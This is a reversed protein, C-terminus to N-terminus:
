LRGFFGCLVELIRLPPFYHVNYHRLVHKFTHHENECDTLCELLAQLKTLPWMGGWSDSADEEQPGGDDEEGVDSDNAVADQKRTKAGTVRQWLTRKEPKKMRGTGLSVVAPVAAGFHPVV